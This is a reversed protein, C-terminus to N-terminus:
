TPVVQLLCISYLLFRRQDACVYWCWRGPDMEFVTSRFGHVILRPIGVVICYNLPRAVEITYRVPGRTIQFYLLQLKPRIPLASAGPM